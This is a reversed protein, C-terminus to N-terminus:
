LHSDNRPKNSCFAEFARDCNTGPAGSPRWRRMKHENPKRRITSRPYSEYSPNFSAGERCHPSLDALSVSSPQAEEIQSGNGDLWTSGPAPQLRVGPLELWM